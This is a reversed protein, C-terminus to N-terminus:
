RERVSEQIHQQFPAIFYEILRRQGTIIEATIQMGPMILAKREELQISNSAMMLSMRFMLQGKEPIASHEEIADDAIGTVRADITGYKTFPFTHVKIIAPDNEQVFGIDQNSLWVEAELPAEDPVILMLQQAEVVVGGVTNVTMDKVQGSVPSYLVQRADFDQAQILQQQLNNMQREAESINSLTQLRTQAVLALMQQDSEAIAAVLQINRAKSAALDQLQRIRSEELELFQHQAVLKKDALQKLDHARKSTIPLTNQLKIVEEENVNKEALRSERQKQLMTLQASYQQWQQQLLQQQLLSGQLAYLSLGQEQGDLLQLFSKERSLIDRIKELENAVRSQEAESHTRDLAILPDGAKVLQGEQVFITQVVGKELPQIQKVRSSPIIKGQAVAVIDIKALCSFVLGCLLFIVISYALIRALPNPPSCQIELLAPLFELRVSAFSAHKSDFIM